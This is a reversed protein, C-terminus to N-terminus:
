NEDDVVRASGTADDEFETMLNSIKSARESEIKTIEQQADEILPISTLATEHSIFGGAVSNSLNIMATSIDLLDIPENKNFKIRINPIFESQRNMTLFSSIIATVSESFSTATTDALERMSQLRNKLATGSAANTFDKDNLNVVGTIDYLAVLLRNILNEQTGDASEKNLFSADAPKDTTSTMEIIRKDQLNKYANDKGAIIANVVKLISDGFYDVDNKKESVADDLADIISLVDEYLGMKEEDMYFEVLPLRGYSLAQQEFEVVGNIENVDVGKAISYDGFKDVDGNLNTEFHESYCYIDALTKDGSYSYIYRIGYLPEHDVSQSYIVFGETPDLTAVRTQSLNDQYILALGRGYISVLKTEHSLFKNLKNLTCFNKVQADVTSILDHQTDDSNDVIDVNAPISSTYGTFSRVINKTYNMVIRNDPKFKAKRQKNAIGDHSGRYYRYLKDYKDQLDTKHYAVLFSLDSKTLGVWDGTDDYPNIYFTGTKDIVANGSRLITDKIIKIM